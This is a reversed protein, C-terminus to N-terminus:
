KKGLSDILDTNIKLKAKIGIKIGLVYNSYLKVSPYTGGASTTGLEARFKVKSLRSLRKARQLDFIVDTTKKYPTTVKGDVGIAAAELFKYSKDVFISDFTVGFSDLLYVQTALDIPYGNTGTFRLMINEIMEQDPMKVDLDQEKELVFDRASGYLPLEVDVIFKIQSNDTIFNRQTKGNPNLDVYTQFIIQKPKQNIVTKINSVNKDILASDYLMQGIQSATPTNVPLPDPIGTINTETGGPGKSYGALKTFGAKVPVGFSNGCIIKVKPDEITFTGDFGNDFVSLDITDGGNLLNVQGIYGYFRSFKMGKFGMDISMQDGALVTETTANLTLEFKISVNNYGLGGNSMNWKYGALAINGNAIIPITVGYTFPVNLSLATGLNKADEFTLKLNGSTKIESSISAALAGAKLWLSDIERSGISFTKNSQFSITQAQGNTLANAQLTNLVITQNFNQDPITIAEGATSSFMQGRYVLSMFGDSQKKVFAFDGKVLDDLSLEDSVLPIAYEPNIDDMTFGKTLLEEPTCNQLAVLGVSCWFLTKIKSFMNTKFFVKAIECKM